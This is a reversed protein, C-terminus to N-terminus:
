IKKNPSKILKDSILFRNSKNLKTEFESLNIRKFKNLNQYIIESNSFLNKQIKKNINNSLLINNLLEFKNDYNNECDKFWNDTFKRCQELDDIIVFTENEIFDIISSPNEEAIGLFSELNNNNIDEIDFTNNISLTSLEKLIKQKSGRHIINIQNITDLTKQTGADYERIKDIFNDFFEIRIPVENNVPFIDIIDGRRSWNGETTTIEEKVYGLQSLAIALDKIEIKKGKILNLNYKKLYSKNLLHPQLSRETTIIINKENSNKKNILKTLINLQSYEVETSKNRIEYPYYENAPYYLVSNNNNISQFYGYWKYALESNACVLLINKREINAISNIILAKAFRNSGILNLENKNNIRKILEKTIQSKSIYNILSELKM